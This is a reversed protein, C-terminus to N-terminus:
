SKPKVKRCDQKGEFNQNFFSINQFFSPLHGWSFRWLNRQHLWCQWQHTLGLVRSLRTCSSSDYLNSTCPNLARSQWTQHSIHMITSPCSLQQAHHSITMIASPSSLQHTHYSFLMIVLPCSLWHAHYGISMIALPCSQQNAHHSIPM